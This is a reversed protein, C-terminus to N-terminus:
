VKKAIFSLLGKMKPSLNGEMRNTKNKGLLKLLICKKDQKLETRESMFFDLPCRAISCEEFRPCKKMNKISEQEM